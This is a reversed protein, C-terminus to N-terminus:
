RRTAAFAGLRDRSIWNPAVIKDLELAYIEPDTYFRQDLSYGPKQDAILEDISRNDSHRASNM